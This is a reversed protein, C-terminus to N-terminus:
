ILYSALLNYKVERNVFSQIRSDFLDPKQRGNVTLVKVDPILDKLKSELDEQDKIFPVVIFTQGNRLMEREIAGVMVGDDEKLMTVKVEKRGKPPSQLLTFDKLNALSMQMTRPIPTASLTLVDVGTAIQKLKEKHAVGFRQEEDIVVLGLNQFGWDGYLLAHTGVTVQCVGTALEKRVKAMADKKGIQQGGKM